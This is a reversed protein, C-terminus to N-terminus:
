ELIAPGRLSPPPYEGSCVKGRYNRFRVWQEAVVRARQGGDDHDAYLRVADVLRDVMRLLQPDAELGSRAAAFESPILEVAPAARRTRRLTRDLERDVEEPQHSLTASTPSFGSGQGIQVVADGLLHREERTLDGCVRAGNIQCVLLAELAVRLTCRPVMSLMTLVKVKEARKDLLLDAPGLQEEGADAKLAAIERRRRNAKELSASQRRARPGVELGQGRRTPPPKSSPASRAPTVTMKGAEIPANSSRLM